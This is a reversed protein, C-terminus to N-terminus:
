SGQRKLCSAQPTTKTTAKSIGHPMDCKRTVTMLADGLIQLEWYVNQLEWCVNKWVTM